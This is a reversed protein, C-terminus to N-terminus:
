HLVGRVRRDIHDTRRVLQAEFVVLRVDSLWLEAAVINLDLLNGATIGVGMQESFIAM